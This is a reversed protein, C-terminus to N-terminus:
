LCTYLKTELTIKFRTLIVISTLKTKNQKTLRICALTMKSSAVEASSLGGHCHWTSLDTPANEQNNIASPPIWCGPSLSVGPCTTRITYSLLSLLGSPALWYAASRPPRPKPKVKWTQIMNLAHRSEPSNPIPCGTPASRRLSSENRRQTGENGTARQTPKGM